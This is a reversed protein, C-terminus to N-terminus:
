ILNFWEQLLSLFETRASSYVKEDYWEVKVEKGVVRARVKTETKM